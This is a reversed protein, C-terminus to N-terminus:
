EGAFDTKQFALGGKTLQPKIGFESPVFLKVGAEKAADALINHDVVGFVLTVTSILVDVKYERLLASIESPSTYDARM